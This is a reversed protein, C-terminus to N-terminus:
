ENCYYLFRQMFTIFGLVATAILIWYSIQPSSIAFFLASCMLIVRETRPMIGPEGAAKKEDACKRHIAYATAFSTMTSGFFLISALALWTPVAYDPIQASFLALIILFEVLRDSIGDIYAGMASQMKKARAIAGDLADLLGAFIFLLVSAAMDKQFAFYFGCVAAAISAFTIQTPTFPLFALFKGTKAQLDLLFGLKKIGM